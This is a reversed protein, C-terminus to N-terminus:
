RSTDSTAERWLDADRRARRRKVVALVTGALGAAAAVPRLVKILQAM